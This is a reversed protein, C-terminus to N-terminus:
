SCGADPPTPGRKVRQAEVYRRAAAGFGEEPGTPVATVTNPDPKVPDCFLTLISPVGRGLGAGRVNVFLVYPFTVAL